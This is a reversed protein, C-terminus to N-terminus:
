ETSPSKRTVLIFAKDTLSSYFPMQEFYLHRTGAFSFFGSLRFPEFNDIFLLGISGYDISLPTLSEEDIPTRSATRQLPLKLRPLLGRKELAVLFVGRLL